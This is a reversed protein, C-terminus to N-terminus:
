RRAYIQDFVGGDGFHKKQLAEWGGLEAVRVLATQEFEASHRALVKPDRPRFYHKAILEQSEPLYLRELYTRAIQCTGHKEAFRDVIAVSPEALITLSPIVLEFRQKGFTKLLLKAENEWTILADGIGREAFTTAAGRAGSDLVAVNRYAHTMFERTRGEDGAFSKLGYAWAALYNLRAGGGTKPNPTVVSVGDRSLDNWDRVGKPNGARVLLVIISTYPASDSPFRARRSADILGKRSIAAVDQELALTVVDAELGDIVARAQTGSGGHSQRVTLKQGTKAAWYDVFRANYEAYLERTPDYSVNLLKLEQSPEHRCAFSLLCLALLLVRPAPSQKM